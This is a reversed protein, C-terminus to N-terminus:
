TWEPPSTFVSSEPNPPLNYWRKMQMYLDLGFVPVQMKLLQRTSNKKAAIEALDFQRVNEPTIGYELIISKLYM